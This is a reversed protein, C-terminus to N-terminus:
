KRSKKTTEKRRQKIWMIKESVQSSARNRGFFKQNQIKKKNEQTSWSLKNTQFKIHMPLFKGLLHDEKQHAKIVLNNKSLLFSRKTITHFPFMSRKIWCIFAFFLHIRLSELQNLVAASFKRHNWQTKFLLLNYTLYLHL